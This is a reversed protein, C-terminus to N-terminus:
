RTLRLEWRAADKACKVIAAPAHETMGVVFHSHWSQVCMAYVSLKLRDRLSEGMARGISWRDSSNILYPPEKLARHDKIELLPDPPFVVGDDVWGRADGRLWVGYTTITYMTALEPM